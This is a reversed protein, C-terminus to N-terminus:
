VPPRLSNLRRRSATPMAVDVPIAMLRGRQAEVDDKAM